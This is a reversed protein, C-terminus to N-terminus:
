SQAWAASSVIEGLRRKSLSSMHAFVLINTGHLYALRFRFFITSARARLSYAPSCLTQKRSLILGSSSSSALLDRSSRLSGDRRPGCSWLPCHIARTGQFPALRTSRWLGAAAFCNGPELHLYFCPRMPMPMRAMPTPSVFASMLRSPGITRRSGLRFFATDPMTVGRDLCSPMRRRERWRHGTDRDDPCQMRAAVVTDEHTKGVLRHCYANREGNEGGSDTNEQRAHEGGLVAPDAWRVNVRVEHPSRSGRVRLDRLPINLSLM